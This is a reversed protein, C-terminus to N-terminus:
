PAAESPLLRERFRINLYAGSMLLVGLAFFSVIRYLTQLEALDVLAVKGALETGPTMGAGGSM